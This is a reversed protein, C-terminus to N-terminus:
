GKVSGMLLGKIILKLFFIYILLVPLISIIVGAMQINWSAVTTGKLNAIAVTVPQSNVGQTLVLGYLFENWINTFQFIAVVAFGPLSLPLAIKYFATFTNCGDIYASEFLEKPLTVFYNRFLLTTIPLGYATHTLILGLYTNHLGISGMYKVLPILISQPAIYFGIVVLLFLISSGKFKLRSFGYGSFAGLIASFATAFFTIIVSNWLQRKITNFAKSYNTFIPDQILKTPGQSLEKNSKLSTNIATYIPFLYFFVGIFLLIYIIILTSLNKRKMNKINDM